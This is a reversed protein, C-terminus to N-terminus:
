RRSSSALAVGEGRPSGEIEFLLSPLYQITNDKFNFDVRSMVMKCFGFVCLSPFEQLGEGVWIKVHTKQNMAGLKTAPEISRM